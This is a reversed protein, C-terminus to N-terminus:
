LKKLTVKIDIKHSLNDCYFHRFGSLANNYNAHLYEAWQALPVFHLSIKWGFNHWEGATLWSGALKFIQEPECSVAASLTQCIHIIVSKAVSQCCCYNGVPHVLFTGLCNLRQWSSQWSYGQMWHTPKIYKLSRIKHSWIIRTQFILPKCKFTVLINPNSFKFVWNWQLIINFYWFNVSLPQWSILIPFNSNTAFVWNRQLFHKKM